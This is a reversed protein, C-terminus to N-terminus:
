RTVLFDFKGKEDREPQQTKQGYVPLFGRRKPGLGFRDGKENGPLQRVTGTQAIM